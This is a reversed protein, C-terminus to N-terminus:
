PWIRATRRGTPPASMKSSRARLEAPSRCGPSREWAPDATECGLSIAMEGTSSVRPDGGEIGLPRSETSGVRTTFIESPKGDWSASYVITQGDPAFRAGTVFGRRFTLATRRRRRRKATPRAQVREGALFALAALGAAALVAAALAARSLRLRRAGPPAVGSVSLGSSHDRLTALDRALDKTSGYRDEPIRRSAASSSGSSTRRRRRRRRRLAAGARFRHDGLADAGGDSARLGAQGVGDRLPDLRPLVPRIPLGGARREGAGAVHIRGHRPGDRGRDRPLRRVSRATRAEFGHPSLKALGFDLIKVFGDRTVMLNEPKLDRHVIGAAHAKALGDAMQAAISLLKKLPVPGAALLERLTRGEVLEMAIYSTGDVAGIDYITVINPHNLASATRAEKEFRSLRRPTARRAGAPLVKIAVERSLKQDRARYVEGMGGAGLPGRIEYPGVRSGAGLTM